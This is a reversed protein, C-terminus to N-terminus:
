GQDGRMWGEKGETQGLLMNFKRRVCELVAPLFSGEKDISNLEASLSHMEDTSFHFTAGTLQHVPNVNM